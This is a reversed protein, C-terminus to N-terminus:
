RALAALETLAAVITAVTVVIAATSRRAHWHPETQSHTMRRMRASHWFVWAAAAAAAVAAIVAGVGLRGYTLRALLAAGGLLALSTRQWALVTREHARTDPVPLTM